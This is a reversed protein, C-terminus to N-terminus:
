GNELRRRCLRTFLVLFVVGFAAFIGCTVLTTTGAGRVDFDGLAYRPLFKSPMRLWMMLTNLVYYALM